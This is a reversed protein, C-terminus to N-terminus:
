KICTNLKIPSKQNLLFIIKQIWKIKEHSLEKLNGFKIEFLIEGPKINKYLQHSSGKGKGMRIGISKKTNYVSLSLRCFVKSYIKMKKRFFFVMAKYQLEQLWGGNIAFVGIAGQLLPNITNFKNHKILLHKKNFSKM